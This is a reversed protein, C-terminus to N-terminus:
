LNESENKIGFYDSNIDSKEMQTEMWDQVETGFLEKSDSWWSLTGKYPFLRSRLFFSAGDTHQSHLLEMENSLIAGEVTSFIGFMLSDFVLKDSGSLSEYNLLGKMMIERNEIESMSKLSNQALSVVAQFSNDEAVANGQRVQSGLYIISVIIGIVGIIEAIATIADWNM